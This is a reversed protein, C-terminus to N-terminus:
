LGPSETFRNILAEYQLKVIRNQSEGAVMMELSVDEGKGDTMWATYDVESEKLLNNNGTAAVILMELSESLKKLQALLAPVSSLTGGFKELSDIVIVGAADEDSGALQRGMEQISGINTDTGAEVVFVRKLWGAAQRGNREIQEWEPSDKRVRGKEIDKGAVGSLRALTRIRLTAKPTEFSLYLGPANSRAAIQDILQKLFDSRREINADAFLMVGTFLGGTTQDLGSFGTEVRKGQNSAVDELYDAWEDGESSLLNTDSQAPMEWVSGASAPAPKGDKKAQSKKPTEKKESAEEKAKAQSILKRTETKSRIHTRKSEENSSRSTKAPPAVAAPASDVKKIAAFRGSSTKGKSREKLRNIWKGLEALEPNEGRFFDELFLDEPIESSMKRLEEELNTYVVYDGRRHMEMLAGYIAKNVPFYFDDDSLTDMIKYKAESSTANVTLCLTRLIATELTLMEDFDESGTRGSRDATPSM